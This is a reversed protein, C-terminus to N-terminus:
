TFLALGDCHTTRSTKTCLSQGCSTRTMNFTDLLYLDKKSLLLIWEQIELVEDGDRTGLPWNHIVLLVFIWAHFATGVARRLAPKGPCLPMPPADVAADSSCTCACVRAHEGSHAHRDHRYVYPRLFHASEVEIASKNPAPLPRSVQVAVIRM